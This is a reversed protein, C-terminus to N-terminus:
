WFANSQIQLFQCFINSSINMERLFRRQKTLNPLFVNFITRLKLIRLWLTLLQIVKSIAINNNQDHVISAQFAPLKSLM